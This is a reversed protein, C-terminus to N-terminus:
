YGKIGYFTFVEQDNILKLMNNVIKIIKAAM